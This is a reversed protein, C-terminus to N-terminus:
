FYFLICFKWGYLCNVRLNGATSHADLGVDTLERKGVANHSRDVDRFHSTALKESSHKLGISITTTIVLYIIHWSETGTLVHFNFDLRVHFIHVM